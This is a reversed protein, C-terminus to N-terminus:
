VFACDTQDTKVVDALNSGLRGACAIWADLVSEELHQKRSLVFLTSFNSAQVLAIDGTYDQVIYNPGPCEPEPTGPFQVRLVGAAGYTANAPKATGLINVARGAAECTNNVAVNGDGDLSYQAYICKCGATFPAVTGAVQYWRGAIYSDLDFGIDAAPYFCEGDWLSPVVGSACAASASAAIGALLLPLQMM